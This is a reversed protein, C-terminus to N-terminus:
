KPVGGPAPRAKLLDRRAREAVLELQTTLEAVQAAYFDRVRRLVHLDQTVAQIEAQCTRLEDAPDAWALTTMGLLLACVLRLM